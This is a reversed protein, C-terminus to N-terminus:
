WSRITQVRVERRVVVTNNEHKITVDACNDTFLAAKEATFLLPTLGTFSDFKMPWVPENYGAGNFEDQNVAASNWGCPLQPHRTKDLAPDYYDPSEYPIPWEFSM